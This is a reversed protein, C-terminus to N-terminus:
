QSAECSFPLREGGEGAPPLSAEVLELCLEQVVHHVVGGSGGAADELLKLAAGVSALRASPEVEVPEGLNKQVGSGTAPAGGPASGPPPPVPPAVSTAPAPAPGAAVPNTEPAPVVASRQPTRAPVPTGIVTPITRRATPTSRALARGTTSKATRAVAGRRDRAAPTSLVAAPSRTQSTSGASTSHRGGAGGGFLSAGALGLAFASGTLAVVLWTSLKRM